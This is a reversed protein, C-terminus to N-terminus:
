TPSLRPTSRMPLWSGPQMSSGSSRPGPFAPAPRGRATVDQLFAAFLNLSERRRTRAEAGLADIEVQYARAVVLDAQLTGLYAGLM